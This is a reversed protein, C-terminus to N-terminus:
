KISFLLFFYLFCFVLICELLIRIWGRRNVTTGTYIRATTHPPPPCYGPTTTTDQPLTPTTNTDPRHHHHGPPPTLPTSMGGSWSRGRAMVEEGWTLDGGRRHGHSRDCSANPTVEGQSPCVSAQSFM